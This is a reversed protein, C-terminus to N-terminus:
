RDTRTSTSLLDAYLPHHAAGVKHAHVHGGFAELRLLRRHVLWKQYWCAKLATNAVKAV